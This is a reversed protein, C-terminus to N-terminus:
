WYVKSVSRAVWPPALTLRCGSAHALCTSPCRYVGASVGQERQPSGVSTSAATGSALNTLAQLHDPAPSGIVDTADILEIYEMGRASEFVQDSMPGIYRGDIVTWIKYLPIDLFRPYPKQDYDAFAVFPSESPLTNHLLM